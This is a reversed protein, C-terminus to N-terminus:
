LDVFGPRLSLPRSSVEVPILRESIHAPWKMNEQDVGIERERDSALFSDTIEGSEFGVATQRDKFAVGDDVYVESHPTSIGQIVPIVKSM